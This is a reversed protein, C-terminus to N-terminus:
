DAFYEAVPNLADQVDKCEEDTVELHELQQEVVIKQVIDRFNELASIIARSTDVESHPTAPPTCNQELHINTCVGIALSRSGQTMWDLLEEFDDKSSDRLYIPKNDNNFPFGSIASYFSLLSKPIHYTKSSGVHVEVLKGAFLIYLTLSHVVPSSLIWQCLQRRPFDALHPRDEM